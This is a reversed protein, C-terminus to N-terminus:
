RLERSMRVVVLVGWQASQVGDAPEGCRAWIWEAGGCGGHAATGRDARGPEGAGVVDRGRLQQGPSEPHGGSGPLLDAARHQQRVERVPLRQRLPEHPLLLPLVHKHLRLQPPHRRNTENAPTEQLAILLSPATFPSLPSPSPFPSPGYGTPFDLDFSTAYFGIGPGTLGQTIPNGATFGDSPAGPLHYGHRVAYFGDENLPGRDLDAYNEGGFNGTLKWSVAADDRGQLEYDLIGRPNKLGSDGAGYNEDLGTLDIAVTLVYAAGSTLNQLPFTSTYDEQVNDGVWSGLFTSNLFASYAFATGGQANVTFATENGASVFQGRFVLSGYSFGYDSGYLSVPTSLNGFESNPSQAINATPWLSDDYADQAEPLTDLYSWNATSLDPLTYQPQTYTLNASLAGTQPDTTFTIPAGNFTLTSINRDTPALIQFPVTANLDGVVDLQTDSSFTANRVLYGARIITNNFVWHNYATNRDVLYATLAQGDFQVVRPTSSTEWNVVTASGRTDNTIPEGSIQTLVPNGSVALEHLEGAGGYVVLVSGASSNKWTFVEATSYALDYLGVNYDSVHIKSDRGPLTLQGGLQPVTTNGITFTYNTSDLTSVAAHRVVYFATDTGNGFLPTVSLSADNTYTGNTLNGVTATLYAPSAQAFNAILKAESYKERTITRDEAIVAGYDYSTYGMPYAINGWNTGGYTMYINFITVGSALFDKYYVSEFQANTFIACADYGYAGWGDTSGGQAEILSYPTTPSQEEHLEHFNTPLSDDRWTYPSSCNFGQPYTDHGYIDVAAPSGPAFLGTPSQDNSILPVVIGANRFQDEM